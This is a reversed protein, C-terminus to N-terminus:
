PLEVLGDGSTALNVVISDLHKGAVSNLARILIWSQLKCNPLNRPFSILPQGSEPDSIYFKLRNKLLM